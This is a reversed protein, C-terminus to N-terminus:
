DLEDDELTPDSATVIDYDVFQEISIEPAEYYMKM